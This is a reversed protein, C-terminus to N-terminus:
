EKCVVKNESLRLKVWGVIFYGRRGSIICFDVDRSPYIVLYLIYTYVVSM